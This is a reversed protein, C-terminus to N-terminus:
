RPDPDDLDTEHRTGSSTSPDTKGFTPNHAPGLTIHV